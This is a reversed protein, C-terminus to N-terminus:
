RTHKKKTKQYIVKIAHKALLQKVAFFNFYANSNNDDVDLQSIWTMEM